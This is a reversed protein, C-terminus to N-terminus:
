YVKLIVSNKSEKKILFLLHRYQLQNCFSSVSKEILLFM